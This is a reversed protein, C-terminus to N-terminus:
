VITVIFYNTDYDQGDKKVVLDYSVTCLPADESIEVVITRETPKDGAIIPLPKTLTKGTKLFTEAKELTLGKCGEEVESARVQYTFQGAESEGRVVNKIGFRVLYKTGKKMDAANAPLYVVTRRDDNNFLQNIQAKLNNDILDVADTGTSFINKVLVIGLIMMSMALVLVVITSMSLEIAGRTKMKNM